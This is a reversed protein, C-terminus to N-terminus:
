SNTLYDMLGEAMAEAIATLGSAAIQWEQPNDGFFPEAIVAPCHTLKLFEGGRDGSVRPKSGRSVASPFAEAYAGRLADALAKGRKSHGWYLWEHGRATGNAANFHLELAVTAKRARLESAVWRMSDTYGSGRYDDLVFAQVGKERLIREIEFALDRNFEWEQVGGASVAGGDRRGNIHRSHGVCLAVLTEPPMTRITPLVADGIRGALWSAFAAFLNM